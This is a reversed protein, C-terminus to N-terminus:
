ESLFSPSFKIFNTLIAASAAKATVESLKPAQQLLGFGAGAGALTPM